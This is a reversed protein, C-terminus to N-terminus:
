CAYPGPNVSYSMIITWGYIKASNIKILRYM